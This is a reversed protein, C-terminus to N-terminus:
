RQIIEPPFPRPPRGACVNDRMSVAERQYREFDGLSIVSIGCLERQDNAYEVIADWAMSFRHYAECRDSAGRARKLSQAAESQLRILEPCRAEASAQSCFGVLAMVALMHTRM